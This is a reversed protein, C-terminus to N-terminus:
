CRYRQLTLQSLGRARTLHHVKTRLHAVLAVEKPKGCTQFHQCCAKLARGHGAAAPAGLLRATMM